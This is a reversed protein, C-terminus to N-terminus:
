WLDGYLQFHMWNWGFLGAEPMTPGVFLTTCAWILRGVVLSVM